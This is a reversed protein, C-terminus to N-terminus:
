RRRQGTALHGTFWDRALSAVQELTGPESFLHTAGPVVSLQSGAGLHARSEENLALVRDDLGGVILLTPARVGALAPGALDPRGGRSVIAAVDSAPDSAALLAAAAGTSAGLYGLGLRGLGAQGRLWGTAATLRAALLGIDFVNSRDAEEEPTLLDFLLTGLRVVHLQGAVYLNRSSTRGSGSGHAFVVVGRAGPPVTLHGPLTVPGAVVAVEQDIGQEAAPMGPNSGRPTIRASEPPNSGRPSIGPPGPPGGARALLAQGLLRVVDADSSQAFDSYWQGIAFFPEPSELCIM